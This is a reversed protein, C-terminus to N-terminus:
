SGFVSLDYKEKPVCIIEGVEELGPKALPDHPDRVVYGLGEFMEILESGSHGDASTPKKWIESIVVPRHESMTHLAGRLVSFEAGEVDVKLLGPRLSYKVVLDDVREIPVNETKVEKNKVALHEPLNMSSYEEMGSVFHIQGQGKDAGIMGNFLIVRDAVENRKVNESLREFTAGTPEAALVRGTTLRRAASVTYFGINAGVDLVDAQPNINALFLRSVEPEYYGYRLFRRLLHSRPDISFVGDFENAEFAIDGKVIESIRDLIAEGPQGRWNLWARRIAVPGAVVKRTFSHRKLFKKVGSETEDAVM